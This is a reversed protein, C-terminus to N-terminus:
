EDFPEFTVNQLDEIISNNSTGIIDALESSDKVGSFPLANNICSSCVYNNCSVSLTDANVLCHSHWSFKCVSCTFISVDFIIYETCKHCVIM